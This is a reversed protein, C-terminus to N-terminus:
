AHPCRPRFRHGNITDIFKGEESTPLAGGKKKAWAAADFHNMLKIGSGMFKSAFQSVWIPKNDGPPIDGYTWGEHADGAPAIDGIKLEQKVETV